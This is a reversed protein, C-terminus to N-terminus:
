TKPWSWPLALPLAWLHVHSRLALYLVVTVFVYYLGNMVRAETM